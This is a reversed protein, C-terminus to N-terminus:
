LVDGVDGTASGPQRAGLVDDRRDTGLRGTLPNPRPDVL